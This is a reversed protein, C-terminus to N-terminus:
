NRRLTTPQRGIITMALERISQGIIKRPDRQTSGQKGGPEFTEYPAKMYTYDVHLGGRPGINVNEVRASNAFRGTRFQLAPPTMKSAVMQPLLENMINRLAIPSQTTKAEDVSKGQKPRAKVGKSAKAILISKAKNTAGRISKASAKKGKINADKMEKLLRRNVKLRFDPRTGKVKLLKEVLHKKAIYESIELRSKSGKMQVWKTSNREIGKLMAPMVHNKVYTDIHKKIGSLDYKGKAFERNGKADTAHLDVVLEEDFKMNTAERYQELEFVLELNNTIMEKVVSVKDLIEQEYKTNVSVAKMREFNKAMALVAVTTQRKGSKPRIEKSGFAEAAEGHGKIPNVQNSRSSTKSERMTDGAPNKKGKGAEECYHALQRFAGGRAQKYLKKTANNVLNYPINNKTLKTAKTMGKALDIDIRQGGQVSTVDTPIIKVVGAFTSKWTEYVGSKSLMYDKVGKAAADTFAQDFGGPHEVQLARDMDKKERDSFSKQYQRYADLLNRKLTNRCVQMTYSYKHKHLTDFTSRLSTKIEKKILNAVEEIV